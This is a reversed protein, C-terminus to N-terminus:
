RVRDWDVQESQAKTLGFPKGLTEPAVEAAQRHQVKAQAVRMANVDLRLNAIEAQIAALKSDLAKMREVAEHVEALFAKLRKL